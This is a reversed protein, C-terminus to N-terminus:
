PQAMDQQVEAQTLARNYVRVADVLGSFWEGWVSNGGIRLPDNSTRIAGTLNTTRVLVGNVYLRLASGNYTVALHAWTGAALAATGAAARDSGVNVYGAPISQANAGYLAYALGGPREKLLVTTWSGPSAPRVWAELTMGNTLDLSAADAISVMDGNGDFSLAGGFRGNPTWTAGVV